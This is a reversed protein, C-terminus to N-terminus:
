GKISIIEEVRGEVRGMREELIDLRCNWEDM